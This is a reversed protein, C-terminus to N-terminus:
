LGALAENLYDFSKVRFYQLNSEVKDYNSVLNIAFDVPIDVNWHREKLDVISLLNSIRTNTNQKAGAKFRDFSFFSKKYLISFVTCHFSDTFVFRSHRIYNLFEGPGVDYPTLDAFNNDAPIYDDLHILAVIKLNVKQAFNKIYERQSPNNGLLYM